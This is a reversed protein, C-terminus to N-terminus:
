EVVIKASTIVAKWRAIERALFDRLGEPDSAVMEVGLSSLYESVSPENAARIFQDALAKVVAPPTGAPAFVGNWSGAQYGTLGLEQLTPTNPLVALRKPGTVALARFKGEKIGSLVTTTIIVVCDIHGGMLDTLMPADGKYPVQLFKVGAKSMLLELALHNAGGPVGGCKIKEPNAKAYDIFEKYNKVPVSPHVLLVMPFTGILSIPTFDRVADYPMNKFLSNNISHPSGGILLTYGDPEAQAVYQSAIRAGAGVRNEVVVPVGLSIKAAVRRTLADTAGGPPVPVIIRIPKNPYGQASTEPAAIVGFMLMLALITKM